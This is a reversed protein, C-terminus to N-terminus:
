EFRSTPSKSRTRIIKNNLQDSPVFSIESFLLSSLSFLSFEM